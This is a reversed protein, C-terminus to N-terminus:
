GLRQTLPVSLELQQRLAVAQDQGLLKVLQEQAERWLPLAQELVLEGEHTLKVIRVRRDKQAAELAAWGRNQLPKLNRSLTTPDMALLDHLRPM